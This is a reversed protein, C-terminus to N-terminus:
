RRTARKGRIAALGLGPNRVPKESPTTFLVTQWGQDQDIDFPDQDLREKVTPAPVEAHAALAPVLAVTKLLDKRKM